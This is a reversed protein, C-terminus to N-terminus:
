ARDLHPLVVERALLLRAAAIPIAVLAGAVGLVAAGVLVALVTVLAPVKVM